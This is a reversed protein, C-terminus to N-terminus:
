VHGRLAAIIAPLNPRVTLALAAAAGLGVTAFFLTAIVHM